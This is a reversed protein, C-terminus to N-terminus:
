PTAPVIAPSGFKVGFATVPYVDATISDPASGVAKAVGNVLAVPQKVPRGDKGVIAKRNTGTTSANGSSDCKEMLGIDWPKLQWGDPDFRFEWKTEVYRKM